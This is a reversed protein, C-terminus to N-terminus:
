ERTVRVSVLNSRSNLSNLEVGRLVNGKEEFLRKVCALTVVCCVSRVSGARSNQVPLGRRRARRERGRRRQDPQGTAARMNSNFLM